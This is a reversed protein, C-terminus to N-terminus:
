QIIKYYIFLYIFLCTLTSFILSTFSVLNKHNLGIGLGTSVLGLGLGGSTFLPM